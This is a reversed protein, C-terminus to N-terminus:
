LRQPTDLITNRYDLGDIIVTIVNGEYASVIREINHICTCTYLHLNVYICYLIHIVYAFIYIHIYINEIAHTIQKNEM